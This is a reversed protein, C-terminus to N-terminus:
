LPPPNLDHPPKLAQLCPWVKRGVGGVGVGVGGVGSSSWRWPVDFPQPLGFVSDLFDRLM